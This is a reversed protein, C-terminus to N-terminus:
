NILYCASQSDTIQSLLSSLKQSNAQLAQAMSVSPLRLLGVLEGRLVEVTPLAACNSLGKPTFLQNDILGGLLHLKPESKTSALLSALSTPDEGYAIATCGKFLLSINRYRTEELAKAAVKSPFVRIKVDASMLKVRVGKWQETSLDNYHFVAVLRSLEFLNRLDSGIM